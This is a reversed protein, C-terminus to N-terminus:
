HSALAGQILPAINLTRIKPYRIQPLTNTVLIQEVPLRYLRDRAGASFIGHTAALRIWRAGQQSVLKVAESITGGTDIMDDVILVSKGRVTGHLQRAIAVNPRPRVKDILAIEAPPRLLGALQEARLTSGADPAVIVEPPRKKIAEAFLPLASLEITSPGLSKRIFESHVDFLILTSSKLHLLLDVVMIGISAEGKRNPRDQRAYGLYPIVLATKAAGNERVLRNLALLEFLSEANPLISAVIAVSKRSVGEILRYGREGDAFAYTEYRGVPFGSNALAHHLHATSPTLFLNPRYVIELRRFFINSFGIV